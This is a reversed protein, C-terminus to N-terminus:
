KEPAVYFFGTSGKADVEVEQTAATTWDEEPADLSEATKVVLTLKAKQTAPDVAIASFGSAKAAGVAASNFATLSLGNVTKLDSLTSMSDGLDTIGEAVQMKTLGAAKETWPALAIEGTGIFVLTGDKIYAGAADSGGPGVDWPMGEQGLIGLIFWKLDDDEVIREGGLWTHRAIDSALVREETAAVGLRVHQRESVSVVTRDDMEAFAALGVCAAIAFILKKM